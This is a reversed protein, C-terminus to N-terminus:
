ERDKAHRARSAAGIKARAEITHHYGVGNKNGKLAAAMKAKTEISHSRGVSHKNGILALSLAARHETSFVRGLHSKNGMQAASMNARAEPSYKRGLQAASLKARTEDSVIRTRNAAMMDPRKVGLPSTVCEKRLNYEPKFLDVAEQELQTLRGEIIPLYLPAIVRFAFASEGYKNWAAQLYRNVGKRRRLSWRHQAWRVNVNIAQGIYKHGNITNVIEYIGAKPNIM